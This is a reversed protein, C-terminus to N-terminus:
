GVHAVVAADLDVTRRTQRWAEVEVDTPRGRGLARHLATLESRWRAVTRLETGETFYVVITGRNIEGSDLLALWYRKGEADPARGLVDLYLQDLFESFTAQDYRNTFEESEAFWEAVDELRHGDGRTDLWYDWGEADPYRRFFALYLRDLMAASPNSEILDALAPGLGRDSIASRLRIREESTPARGELRVFLEEAASTPGAFPGVPEEPPAVARGVAEDVFPTPNVPVAGNSTPKYVEFHLHPATWEANGSDGLFGVFEGAEVSVSRRGNPDTLAACLKASFVHHCGARGDDTGPTDNNMHIYQYEWGAADRFRVISGRSNDYRGWTLVADNAAVLPIMKDGMLDVGIHRRGGSRPAGWTDSWHLQDIYAPDVPFTIPHAVSAGAPSITSGVFGVAVSAATISAVLLLNRTATSLSQFRAALARFDSRQLRGTTSRPPRDPPIM